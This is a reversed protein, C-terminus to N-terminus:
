TVFMKEFRVRNTPTGQFPTIILKPLEVTTSHAEKELELRKHTVELEADIKEQWM